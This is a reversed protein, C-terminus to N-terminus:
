FFDDVITQYTQLLVCSGCTVDWQLLNCTKSYEKENNFKQLLEWM